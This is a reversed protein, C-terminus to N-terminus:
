SLFNLNSGLALLSNNLSKLCLFTRLMNKNLFNIWHLCTSWSVMSSCYSALANSFFSFNCSYKLCLCTFPIYHFNPQSLSHDIFVTLQILLCSLHDWLFECFLSYHLFFLNGKSILVPKFSHTQLTQSSGSSTCAM